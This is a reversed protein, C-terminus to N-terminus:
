RATKKGMPQSVKVAAKANSAAYLGASLNLACKSSELKGDVFVSIVSYDPHNLCEENLLIWSSSFGKIGRKNRCM